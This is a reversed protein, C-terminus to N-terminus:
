QNNYSFILKIKYYNQFCVKNVILYEPKVDKVKSKNLVNKTKEKKVYFSTRYNIFFFTCM